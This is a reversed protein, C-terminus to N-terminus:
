IVLTHMYYNINKSSAEIFLFVKTRIDELIFDLLLSWVNVKYQYSYSTCLYPPKYM